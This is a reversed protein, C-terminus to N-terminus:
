NICVSFTATDVQGSTEVTFTLTWVGPMRFDVDDVSVMGDGDMDSITPVVTTGHGHDPMFPQVKTVSGESLPTESADLLQVTWSNGDEAPPAPASSVYRVHVIGADGVKTLGTTIEEYATTFEDCISGSPPSGTEASSCGSVAFILVAVPTISIRSMTM